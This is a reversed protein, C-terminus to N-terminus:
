RRIQALYRDNEHNWVLCYSGRVPGATGGVGTGCCDGRPNKRLEERATGARERAADDAIDSLEESLDKESPVLSTERYRHGGVCGPAM